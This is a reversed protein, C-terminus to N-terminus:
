EHEKLYTPMFHILGLAVAEAIDENLDHHQEDLITYLNAGSEATWLHYMEHFLTDWAMSRKIGKSISITRTNPDYKGMEKKMGTAFKVAVPGRPAPVTKPLPPWRM